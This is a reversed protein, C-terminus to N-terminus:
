QSDVSLAAGQAAQWVQAGDDHDPPDLKAAGEVEVQFQTTRMRQTCCMIVRKQTRGCGVSHM